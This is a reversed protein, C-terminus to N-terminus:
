CKLLVGGDIILDIGTMFSAGDSLLFLAASAIEDPDAVRQLPVSQAAKSHMEPTWRSQMPTKVPGPFISNSRINNKALQMALSRSLTAISAKSAAYADQPSTDGRLCQISSFHVLAGGGAKKIHPVAARIVHLISKLNIDFVQDWVALDIELLSVDRDFWIVGAVNAVYDIGGFSAAAREISTNVFSIDTLDGQAYIARDAPFVEEPPPKIDMMLVSCGAELLRRAIALGIGGGAGTVIASKGRFDFTIM